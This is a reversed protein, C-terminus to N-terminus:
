DVVFKGTQKLQNDVFINWYYLGPKLKGSYILDNGRITTEYMSRNKNDVISIKYANNGGGDIWRLKIAGHLTDELNPSIIVIGKGTTDLIDVNRELIYNRSFENSIKVDEPKVNFISDTMSISDFESPESSDIQRQRSQNKERFQNDNDLMAKRTHTMLIVEHSEKKNNFFYFLAALLTGSIILLAITTVLNFRREKIKPFNSRSTTILIDVAIESLADITTEIPLDLKYEKSVDVNLFRFTQGLQNIFIRIMNNHVSHPILNFILIFEDNKNKHISLRFNSSIDEFLIENSELNSIDSNFLSISHKNYSEDLLKDFIENFKNQCDLCKSLHGIVQETEYLSLHDFYNIYSTITEVTLHNNSDDIKPTNVDM